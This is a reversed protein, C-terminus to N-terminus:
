GLEFIAFFGDIQGKLQHWTRISLLRKLIYGPRLYFRKSARDLFRSFEGSDMGPNAYYVEKHDLITSKSFDFKYGERTLVRYLETGPFPTFKNFHAYDLNMDIAFRVTRELSEWTEGPTGVIFDGRVELGAKKTLCIARKNIEVTNGKKLLKLMRDDGSEFGYLVQWCGAQRMHKLLEEDVCAAKTLCSWSLRLKRKKFEDCIEHVRKKNLTFTDDFFRIERVGYKSVVEEIEQFVNAVSRARCREGFVKRDCFTCQSPCGRTTMIVAYPVRRCSAPTPRYFKPHPLLHRAPLPIADLDQIFDQPSNQRIEDGVRYIIGNIGELNEFSGNKYNSFLQRVTLEGEGIVGIDFLGTEMTERPLATVNTG